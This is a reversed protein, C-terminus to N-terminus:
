SIDEPLTYFLTDIENVLLRCALTGHGSHLVFKVKKGESLYVDSERRLKRFDASALFERLLEIQQGHEEFQAEDGLCAKILTQYERRAVTEICHTTDPVLEVEVM